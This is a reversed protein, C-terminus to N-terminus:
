ALVGERVPELPVLPGCLECRLWRTPPLEGGCGECPLRPPRPPLPVDYGLAVLLDPHRAPMAPSYHGYKTIYAAIIARFEDDGIRGHWPPQDFWCRVPALVSM